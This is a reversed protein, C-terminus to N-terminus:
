IGQCRVGAGLLSVSTGPLLSLWPPRIHPAAILLSPLPEWELGWLLMQYWLSLPDHKALSGLWYSLAFCVVVRDGVEYQAHCKRAEKPQKTETVMLM